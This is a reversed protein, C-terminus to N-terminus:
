VSGLGPGPVDGKDRQAADSTTNGTVFDDPSGKTRVLDGRANTGLNASTSAWAGRTGQQNVRLNNQVHKVASVREAIDEARRKAERSDVTGSLTVECGSVQVEIESADVLPDDSLRDNVDERIRDDSRTYNKPGRGRHEGRMDERRRREADEDGFWSSVEDSARDWFGREEGRGYDGSSWDRAGRGFGERGYDGSRGESWSGPGREFGGRGYEERGFGGAFGGSYGGGRGYEERGFGSGGYGGRRSERGSGRGDDEGGRSGGFRGGEGYEGAGFGRGERGYGGGFGRGESAYGSSFGRGERESSRSEREDDRSGYRDPDNRWRDGNAM